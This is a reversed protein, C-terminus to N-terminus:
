YVYNSSMVWVLKADHVAWVKELLIGPGFSSLSPKRGGFDYVFNQTAPCENKLPFHGCSKDSQGIPGPSRFTDFM